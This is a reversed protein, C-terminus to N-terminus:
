ISVDDEAFVSLRLFPGMYTARAFEKGPANTIPDFLWNDLKVLQLMLLHNYASVKKLFSSM